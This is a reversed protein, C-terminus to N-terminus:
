QPPTPGAADITLQPKLGAVYRKWRQQYNKATQQIGAVDEDNLQRAIKGPSGLILSRPPFTKGEPILAGAGILCQEGIVARNLVVAGIGVLSGGGITCGHVMALHGISCNDGITLPLGPDTHLVAGDQINTGRGIRIVDLDGRAVTGFWLSADEGIEVDGIVVATPAVWCRNAGPGRVNVGDLSYVPM